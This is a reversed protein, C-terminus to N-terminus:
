AKVQRAGASNRRRRRLRIAGLAAFSIAAAGGGWAALGWQAFYAPGDGMGKLEGYQGQIVFAAWYYPARWRKQRWMALQAQRLAAPPALGQQFMGAYFHKMLEATAEDDVKWLSAVVAGAGAYMFGRTLGILGEGRVERGLATNCASLVVLDASLDLNYIDQLSLFGDQPEGREDVLSLVIGSMEPRESDLIGHTAFHIVRHRGLGPEVAAARSAGFGTVLAVEGRPLAAAIAEAEERSALLRPVGEGGFLASVDRIARHVEQKGQHAVADASAHPPAADPRSSDAGRVRADDKDFVPDAFVAVSRGAQEYRAAGGQLTPLISASPLSVVEHRLFLPVRASGEPRAEPREQAGGASAETGPETLAGFPIYQLAGETVVLLRRGTLHESAPGIIMDSLREAERGYDAEAQAVRAQRERASEGAVPQPAVLLSRVRNAADEIEARGPLEYSHITGKTVAWLYSREEGLSYELLLTSDDVVREQIAKLGLPQTQLSATHELSGARIQAGVERLQASLEDIEKALASAEAQEGGTQLRARRQEARDNLEKRLAGERELLAPDAKRRLGVRAASLTELLSRARARESAEFAAAAFGESPRERHLRMLLDIYFEYQERVSAFYSARLDQSVVKGRLSEVVGLAEEARASAEALRGSDREMRAINHLTAAEAARYEAKRSLPLAKAYYELAKQRQGRGEYVRGILNLTDTEGRLDNERQWFPLTRSYYELAKDKWGWSDYIRGIERLEYLELRHNSTAKSISLAQQFCELAAQSDGLSHYVKGTEYLTAAEGSRYNVSRFLSLAQNYYELSRKKEGLGSYVFSMGNLIRAEEIPDKIPQIIQKASEFFNLAEQSEGLRSYLRGIANLTLAQGRRDHAAQWLPLSQNYSDFAKGIQGLDSYTYGFNLLTLAQGKRDNLERWFPLAQQYFEVSQQLKGLGYHVEGFNNLAQAEGRRSGTARNLKLAQTCLNLAKPNDGLTLYVFSLENLTEGEGRRDKIERQLSLAQRYYNLANQYEGLPQYVDGIRKLTLAEARRDGVAKWFALSDKFRDIAGRSSQAKWEKLLREGDAFTKEANIRERDEATSPRIEEVRLEYRGRTQQGEPSRVELRYIGSTEAILSVPTPGYDRCDLQALAQGGPEYLTVDADIGQPEVVAHLYQGTDLTIQYSHVEGASLEQATSKGPAPLLTSVAGHETSSSKAFATLSPPRPRSKFTPESLTFAITLLALSYKVYKTFSM